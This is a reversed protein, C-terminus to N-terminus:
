SCRCMLEDRQLYRTDESLQQAADQRTSKVFNEILSEDIHRPVVPNQIDLRLFLLLLTLCM